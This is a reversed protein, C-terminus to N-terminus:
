DEKFREILNNARDIGQQYAEWQAKWHEATGGGATGHKPANERLEMCRTQARTTNQVVWALGSLITDKEKKDFEM